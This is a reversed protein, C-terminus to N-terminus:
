GGESIMISILKVILQPPKNTVQSCNEVRPEVTNSPTEIPQLTITDNHGHNGGKLTAPVKAGITVLEKMLLTIDNQPQNALFKPSMKQDCKKEPTQESTWEDTHENIACIL